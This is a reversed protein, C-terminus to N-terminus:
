LLYYNGDISRSIYNKTYITLIKHIFLVSVHITAFVFFCGFYLLFNFSSLRNSYTSINTLFFFIITNLFFLQSHSKFPLNLIKMPLPTLKTISKPLPFDLKDLIVFNLIHYFDILCSSFQLSLAFRQSAM